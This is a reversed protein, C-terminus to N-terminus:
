TTPVIMVACTAHHAVHNPVSGLIRRAGKMGRNGVVILDAGEGAAIDVLVDAPNGACPHVTVEVGEAAARGRAEELVRSAHERAAEDVEGFSTALGASAALATSVSATNTVCVVHLRAELSRALATAAAVAGTATSSGDTGVVISKYM